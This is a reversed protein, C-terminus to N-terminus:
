TTPGQQPLSIIFTSGKNIASKVKIEGGHAEIVQKVIFLGIGFGEKKTSFFPEFIKKQHAPNIGPGDDEIEFVIKQSVRKVRIWIHGNSGIAEIANRIINEIARLFWRRDVNIKFEEDIAIDIHVNIGRRIAKPVLRNKIETLLESIEVPCPNLKLGHSFSLLEDTLETLRSLETQINKIIDNNLEGVAQMYQLGMTLANLPNRIEHAVMASLKGMTALRESAELKNTLEKEKIILRDIYIGLILLLISSMMFILLCLFLGQRWIHQKISTDLGILIFLNKNPLPTTERCLYFVNGNEVGKWCSQLIKSNPSIGEPFTNLLVKNKEIVIVGILFPQGQLEDTLWALNQLYDPPKPIFKLIELHGAIRNQIFNLSSLADLYEHLNLVRYLIFLEGISAFFLVVLAGTILFRHKYGRWKPRL